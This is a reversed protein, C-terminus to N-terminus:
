RGKALRWAHQAAEVANVVLVIAVVIDFALNLESWAALSPGALM